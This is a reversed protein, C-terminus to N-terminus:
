PNEFLANNQRLISKLNTYRRSIRNNNIALRVAKESGIVVVLKKGRTIGTYLLNRQLMIFHETNIPILVAKYESGQSKHISIAYALVLEDIDAPTYRIEKGDIEVVLKSEEEDVGVVIGIDGNYIEKTYNNRIQMVKDGVRFNRSGFIIKKGAPNLLQQLELNLNSIGLVGKHMPSLVQVELKPDFGFRKPIRESVLTKIKQLIRTSDDDRIFYFDSLEDGIGPETVPMQGHNICHANQSIFSTASQRFVHDLGITKIMDSDIIDRLVNGPGVSPLQDVDGVMVLTCSAPMAKLLSDMLVIDVMSVEDLVVVDTELPNSENRVFAGTLPSFELLRHVTGAAEGTIESLRKAARGTPAALTVTIKKYKLIRMLCDILTTKGTGPGGTIVIVKETLAASVADIQRVDLEIRCKEQVWKIAREVKISPLIPEAANLITLKEAVQQEPRYLSKLYIARYDEWEIKVAVLTEIAILRQLAKAVIDEDIDLLAVSKKVLVPEPLFCHGEMGAAQELLYAIGAQARESSNMDYGLHRAIQDAREFGIGRVDSALTYPNEKIVQISRSEYRQYIKLGMNSSIGLSQLFIMVDRIQRHKEWGNLLMKIRKKGFGGVQSLKKPEQEIIRVLDMGFKDILRRAYVKGIGSIMGSGIFRLLGEETSPVVSQHQAVKFQTGFRNDRVWEGTCKLCEGVTLAGLNGVVTVDLGGKDPKLVAVTFNNQENVFVVKKVVGEIVANNEM